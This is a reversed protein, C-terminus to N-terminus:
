MVQELIKAEAPLGVAKYLGERIALPIILLKREQTTAEVEEVDAYKSLKLSVVAEIIFENSSLVQAWLWRPNSRIPHLIDGSQRACINRPILPPLQGNEYAPNFIGLM